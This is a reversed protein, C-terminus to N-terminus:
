FLLELHNTVRQLSPYVVEISAELGKVSSIIELRNNLKWFMSQYQLLCSQCQYCKLFEKKKILKFCKTSLKLKVKLTSRVLKHRKLIIVKAMCISRISASAFKKNAHLYSIFCFVCVCVCVAYAIYAYAIRM